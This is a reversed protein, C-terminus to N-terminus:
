RRRRRAPARRPRAIATTMCSGRRAPRALASDSVADGPGFLHVRTDLKSVDVLVRPLLRIHQYAEKNWRLTIEDASAGQVREWAGHSIHHQALMEFDALSLAQDLETQARLRVAAMGLAVLAGRRTTHMTLEYPGPHGEM